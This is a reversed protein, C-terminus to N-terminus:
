KEEKTSTRRNKSMLKIKKLPIKLNCLAIRTVCTRIKTGAPNWASLQLQQCHYIDRCSEM